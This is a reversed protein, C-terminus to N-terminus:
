LARDAPKPTCFSVGTPKGLGLYRFVRYALGIANSVLPPSPRERNGLVHQGGGACRPSSLCPLLLRGFCVVAVDFYVLLILPLAVNHGFKWFPSNYVQEATQGSTASRDEPMQLIRKSIEM